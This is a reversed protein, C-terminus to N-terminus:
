MCRRTRLQTNPRRASGCRTRSRIEIGVIVLLRGDADDNEHCLKQIFERYTKRRHRDIATVKPLAEHYECAVASRTKKRRREYVSTVEKTIGPPLPTARIRFLSSLGSELTPCGPAGRAVFAILSSFDSSGDNSVLVPAQKHHERLQGRSRCRANGRRAATSTRLHLGGIAEEGIVLHRELLDQLRM